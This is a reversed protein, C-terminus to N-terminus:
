QKTWVSKYNIYTGIGGVLYKARLDGPPFVSRNASFNASSISGEFKVSVLGNCNNFAAQGIRTVSEPIIISTLNGCGYFAYDGISTVSDPITFSSDTKGSPYQLLTTKDKNYLVGDISSYQTNGDKVNIATLHSCGGFARDGISTVSNSITVNSNFGCAFFAQDGISTVSDPITVSTLNICQLFADDGIAEVSNGIIVSALNHCASFANDGIAEVSNGIIVSALRNCNNFAYDGIITVSDPITINVLTQCSKFAKDYIDTLINGTINLSVYKDASKIVDAVNELMLDNIRMSVRIPKDPGNGPLKYLYKRLEEANNIRKNCSLMTFGIVAILAIGLIKRKNKM